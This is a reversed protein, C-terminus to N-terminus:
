LHHESEAHRLHRKLMMKLDQLRVPKTLYDDAGGDLGVICDDASDRGTMIITPVDPRTTTTTAPLARLRKLLQYGDGDPLGLDLLVVDFPQHATAHTWLAWADAVSAAAQVRYGEVSLAHCLTQRLDKADEILLIRLTM